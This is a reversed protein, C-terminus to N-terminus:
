RDCRRYATEVEPFEPDFRLLKGDDKFRVSVSMTDFAISDECGLLFTLVDGKQKSSIMDCTMRAGRIHKGSVIFGSWSDGNQRNFTLRGNRKVFVQDCTAADIAWAGQIREPSASAAGAAFLLSSAAIAAAVAFREIM